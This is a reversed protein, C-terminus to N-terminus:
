KMKIKDPRGQTIKINKRGTCFWGRYIEQKTSEPNTSDKVYWHLSFFVVLTWPSWGGTCVTFRRGQEYLSEVVGWCAPIVKRETYSKISHKIKYSM